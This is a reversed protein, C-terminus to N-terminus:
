HRTGNCAGIFNAARMREQWSFMQINSCKRKHIQLCFLSFCIKILYYNNFYSKNVVDGIYFMRIKKKFLM